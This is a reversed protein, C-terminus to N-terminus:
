ESGDRFPQGLVSDCEAASEGDFRANGGMQVPDFYLVRDPDTARRFRVALDPTISWVYGNGAYALATLVELVGGTVDFDVLVIGPAEVSDENAKSYSYFDKLEM